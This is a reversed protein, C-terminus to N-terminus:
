VTDCGVLYHEEYQSCIYMFMSLIANAAHHNSANDTHSHWCADVKESIFLRLFNLHEHVLSNRSHFDTSYQTAPLLSAKM